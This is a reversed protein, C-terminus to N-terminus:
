RDEEPPESSKDQPGVLDEETTPESESIEIDRPEIEWPEVQKDGATAASGFAAEHAGVRYTEGFLGASVVLLYVSIPSLVFPILCCFIITLYLFNMMFSLVMWVGMILVYALLFGGLNARFVAWWEGFRFAAGIDDKAVVHGIVVPMVVGLFLFGLMSLAFLAMFGFTGFIAIIGSIGAAGSDELLGGFLPAAFMFGYALAFLVMVPLIYIFVVVALKLGDQALDSWEDWEPMHPDVGEVIVLRMIRAFYGYLFIGPIFALIITPSLIIGLFAFLSGTLIKEKWREDQFPFSFLDQLSQMTMQNM